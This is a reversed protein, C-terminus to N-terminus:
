SLVTLVRLVGLVRVTRGLGRVVRGVEARDTGCNCHPIDTGLEEWGQGAQQGHVGSFGDDDGPLYGIGLATAAEPVRRAARSKAPAIFFIM